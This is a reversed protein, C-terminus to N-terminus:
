YKLGMVHRLAGPLHYSHIQDSSEGSHVVIIHNCDVNIMIAFLHMNDRSCGIDICFPHHVYVVLFNESKMTDGGLDNGITTWLKHCAEHLCEVRFETDSMCQRGHVVRLGIPLCLLGILFDLTMKSEEGIRAVIIPYSMNWSGFENKVTVEM